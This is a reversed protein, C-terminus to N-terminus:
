PIVGFRELRPVWSGPPFSLWIPGARGIVNALPVFGDTRSDSSNARNDGLVFLAGEPVVWNGDSSPAVEDIIRWKPGGDIGETACPGTRPFYQGDFGDDYELTPESCPVRSLTAGNVRVDNQVVTVTDGAIGIVRKIFVVGYAENRYAVVAGRELKSGPGAKLAFFQDGILLSPAQGASPVRFPEILNRRLLTSAGSDVAWSILAFAILAGFTPTPGPERAGLGALAAQLGRLLLYLALHGWVFSVGARPLLAILGEGSLMVMVPVLWWLVAARWRLLYGHGLGPFFLALLVALWPKRPTAM